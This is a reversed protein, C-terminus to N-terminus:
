FYGSESLTAILDIIEKIDKNLLEKPTINAIWKKANYCGLSHYTKNNFENNYKLKTDKNFAKLLLNVCNKEM